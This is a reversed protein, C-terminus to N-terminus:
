LCYIKRLERFRHVFSFDKLNEPRSPICLCYLFELVSPLQDFFTQDLSDDCCTLMQANPMQKILEILENQSLLGRNWVGLAHGYRIKKFIPTRDTLLKLNAISQRTIDISQYENFVFFDERFEKKHKTYLEVGKATFYGLWHWYIPDDFVENFAKLLERDVPLSKVFMKLQDRRLKRRSQVLEEIESKEVTFVNLTHLKPHNRLIDGPNIGFKRLNLVELSNLRSMWPSYHVSKLYRLKPCTLVLVDSMIESVKKDIALSLLEPCRLVTKSGHSISTCSCEYTKLKALKISILSIGMLYLHELKM